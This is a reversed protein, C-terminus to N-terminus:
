LFCLGYCHYLAAFVVVHFIGINNDIDPKLQTVPIIVETVTSDCAFLLVSLREVAGCRVGCANRVGVSSTIVLKLVEERTWSNELAKASIFIWRM